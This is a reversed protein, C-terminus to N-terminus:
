VRLSWEQHFIFHGLTQSYYPPNTM